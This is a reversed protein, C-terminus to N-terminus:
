DIFLYSKIKKEKEQVKTEAKKICEPCASQDVATHSYFKYLKGCIFCRIKIM